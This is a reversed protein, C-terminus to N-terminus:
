PKTYIIFFDANPPVIQHLALSQMTMPNKSKNVGIKTWGSLIEVWAEDTLAKVSPRM